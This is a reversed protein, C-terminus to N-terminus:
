VKNRKKAVVIISIGFLFSIQPMFFRESSFIFFLLKNFLSPIPKIDNSKKIKGHKNLIKIFAIIPFLFTNFYSSYLIQYGNNKLKTTLKKLKYRRKHFNVEDHSSWLFQYAPVTIIIKGDTKLYKQLSKLAKEDDDLHEIVDLLFILDFKKKYPINDPLTGDKIVGVNRAKAYERSEKDPEIGYVQGYRSLMLLNGGSGCGIELIYNKKKNNYFYKLIKEIIKRRGLFWWHSDENQIVSKYVERKM